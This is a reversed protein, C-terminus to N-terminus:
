RTEKPSENKLTRLAESKAVGREFKEQLVQAFRPEISHMFRLMGAMGAIGAETAPYPSRANEFHADVGYEEVFYMVLRMQQKLKRPLRPHADGVALGTVFQRRGRLQETCPDRLEFGCRRVAGDVDAGAPVRDGSFTLNDAYRTYVASVTGALALLEADLDHCVVNAIAPSCRTGQLLYGDITSLRALLNAMSTISGLRRFASQVHDLTINDFFDKLDAHLVVRARCHPSANNKISSGPVFGTVCPPFPAANSNVLMAIKKHLEALWRENASHVIRHEGQRKAGRKPIGFVEYFSAQDAHNAYEDLREESTGLAQALRERNFLDVFRPM